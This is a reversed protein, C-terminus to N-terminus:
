KYPFTCDNISKNYQDCFDYTTAYLDYLPLKATTGDRYFKPREKICNGTVYKKEGDGSLTWNYILSERQENNYLGAWHGPKSV